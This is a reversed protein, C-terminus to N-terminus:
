RSTGSRRVGNTNKQAPWRHLEDDQAERLELTAHNWEVPVEFGKPGMQSKEFLVWTRGIHHKVPDREYRSHDLVFVLESNSELATGGLLDQMTPKRDRERTALRNLQSLACITVDLEDALSDMTDSVIEARAAVADGRYGEVLIKQLHDVVFFEAGSDVGERIMKAVWDITKGGGTYIAIDGATRSMRWERLATQLVHRYEPTWRSPIWDTFPIRTGAIAQHLRMIANREKMDLSIMGAKLGKDAAQRLMHLGYQTKGINSAGGVILYTGRPIGRRDGFGWLARDISPLGTPVTVSPKVMRGHVEDVAVDSTIDLWGPNM